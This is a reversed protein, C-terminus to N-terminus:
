YKEIKGATKSFIAASITTQEIRPASSNVSVDSPPCQAFEYNALTEPDYPTGYLEVSKIAPQSHDQCAQCAKSLGLRDVCNLYPRKEVSEQFDFPM